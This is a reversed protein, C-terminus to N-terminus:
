GIISQVDMNRAYLEKKIGLRKFILKAVIRMQTIM